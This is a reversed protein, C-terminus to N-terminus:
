MTKLEKKNKFKFKKKTIKDKSRLKKEVGREDSTWPTKTPEETIPFSELKQVNKQTDTL